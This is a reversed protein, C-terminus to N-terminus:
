AEELAEGLEQMTRSHQQHILAHGAALAAAVPWEIIELAVLAGIAGYYALHEPRPLHVTGIVPLDILLHEARHVREVAARPSVRAQTNTKSAPPRESRQSSPTRRAPATQAPSQDAM